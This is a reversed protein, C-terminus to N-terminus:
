IGDELYNLYDKQDMVKIINQKVMNYKNGNNDTVDVEVTYLGAKTFIKGNIKDELESIVTGREDKITWNIVVKGFVRAYDLNFFLPVGIPVNVENISFKTNDETFPESQYYPKYFKIFNGQPDNVLNLVRQIQYEDFSPNDNKTLVTVKTSCGVMVDGAEARYKSMVDVYSVNKYRRHYFEYNIDGLSSLWDALQGFNNENFHEPIVYVNEGITIIENPKFDVIFLRPIREIEFKFDNWSYWRREEWSNSCNKWITRTIEDAIHLMDVYGISELILKNNRNEFRSNDQISDNFNQNIDQWKLYNGRWNQIREDTLKYFFILDIDRKGIYIKELNKSSSIIGDYGYNTLTVNYWGDYPVYHEIEKMESVSGSIVQRYSRGDGHFSVASREITWETKYYNINGANEWNINVLSNYNWPNTIDAWTDSFTKNILKILGGVKTDKGEDYTAFDSNNYNSFWGICHDRLELITYASLEELTQDPDAFNNYIRPIPDIYQDKAFEFEAIPINDYNKYDVSTNWSNFNILNFNYIEGVIDVIDSVGGYDKSIFYDKLAFLKIIIEDNSFIFNYQLEPLGDVINETPENIKYFLGFQNLKKLTTDKYIEKIPIISIKDTKDNYWYEKVELVRGYDFFEIIQEIGRVSSIYPTINHIETLLEKRKNNLLIKDPLEENIDSDKFIKEHYLSLYEGVNSLLEIYREDEEVVETYLKISHLLQENSYINLVGNKVGEIESRIYVNLQNPKLIESPDTVIRYGDSDYSVSGVNNSIILKNELIELVEGQNEVTALSFEGSEIEFRIASESLLGSLKIVGNDNVKEM